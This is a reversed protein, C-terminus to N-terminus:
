LSKAWTAKRANTAPLAAQKIVAHMAPLLSKM